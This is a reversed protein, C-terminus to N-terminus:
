REPACHEDGGLIEDFRETAERQAAADFEDLRRITAQVIPTVGPGIALVRHM